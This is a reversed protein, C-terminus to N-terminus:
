LLWGGYAAILGVFLLAVTNIVKILANISPGATDKYPDGVTDGVVAAKHVDTGKKGEKELLKKANDWAGGGNSMALALMLGSALVGILLGGLALPGWLFGVVLPAAVAIIGPVAMERLAAKTVIDVCRAYDPRGTGEMIGPITRFQRRVEEIISGAAKGVAEMLFASFLFPLMAGILLGILVLPEDLAFIIHDGVRDLGVAGPEDALRHTYDAFLALAALAASGIAYGKTVAKTTNGVADLADTHKRVEPPLGAMEAIGGANDTIPGYTDMAVIMGTVSLMAVAAIAIGYLGALNYALFIAVAIVLVSIATSQMGVALGSIINTAPGTESAKAIRRVPAKLGTYYETVVIMLVMVAIGIVTALFLRFATASGQPADLAAWGDYGDFVMQTVFWFGVLAIAASAYVGKYLAGMIDQNRGLRVFPIGAISAVIAVAGLLLPYVILESGGTAGAILFGLLVAAIATVAYTEFLDAGMGACDGVNDGVNDAIVAPNRPDDEPIGAEVKGVLDAGVDAAKTYIGGGVRAFLSILSAGFAFGILPTVPDEFGLQADFLWYFGSVGLLALGAVALGSVAGGNFAVKLAAPMGNRAAHAVRVNSKTSIDMGFYGAFASFLAGVAFGITTWLWTAQQDGDRTFTVALLIAIIIAAVVAITRYQRAMYAMAGERVADSIDTMKKDGTPARIITQRLFLAAVLAVVGAAPALLVPLEM